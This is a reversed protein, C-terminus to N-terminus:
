ILMVQQYHAMEDGVKAVADWGGMKDGAASIAKIGQSMPKAYHDYSEEDYDKWMQGVANAVPKATAYVVPVVVAATKVAEGMGHVGKRFDKKAKTFWGLNQLEMENGSLVVANLNQIQAPQYAQHHAGQYPVLYM